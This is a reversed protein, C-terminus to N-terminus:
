FKINHKKKSKQHNKNKSTNNKKFKTKHTKKSYSDINKMSINSNFSKVSHNLEDLIYNYKLYESNHNSDEDDEDKIPKNYLNKYINEFRNEYLEKEKNKIYDKIYNYSSKLYTNKFKHNYKNKSIDIVQNPDDDNIINLYNAKKDNKEKNSINCNQSLFIDNYTVKEEEEEENDYYYFYFNDLEENIKKDKPAKNNIGDILHNPKKNNYDGIPILNYRIDKVYKYRKDLLIKGNVIMQCLYNGPKMEKKDIYSVFCKRIPCKFYEYSKCKNKIGNVFINIKVTDAEFPYILVYFKKEKKLLFLIRRRLIYSKFTSQILQASFYRTLIIKKIILNKLFLNRNHYIKFLQIIKNSKDVREKNIIDKIYNDLSKKRSLFKRFTKQITLVSTIINKSIEKNIMSYIIKKSLFGRIHKQILIIKETLNLNYKKYEFNYMRTYYYNKKCKKSNFNFIERNLKKPIKREIFINKNKIILNNTNDIFDVKINNPNYYKAHQFYKSLPNKDKIKDKLRLIYNNIINFNIIKMKNSALNNYNYDRIKNVNARYKETIAVKQHDNIISNQSFSSNYDVEKIESFQSVLDM